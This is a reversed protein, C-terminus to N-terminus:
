SRCTQDAPVRLSLNEYGTLVSPRKLKLARDLPVDDLPPIVTTIGPAVVKRRVLSMIQADIGDV